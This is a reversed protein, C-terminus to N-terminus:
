PTRGIVALAGGRGALVAGLELLGALPLLPVAAASAIVLDRRAVEEHRVFRRIVDPRRTLRNLLTVWMGPIAQEVLVRRSEIQEFGARMLLAVVGRPTFHVRHRQPDLHFWRDGGLEAQLSVLNPVGVLVRGGPVLWRRVRELIPLPEGLHELVHWLVAADFSAAPLDVIEVSERVVTVGPTPPIKRFPELATVRHGARALATALRGDGAGLDLVRSQPQLPRLIRLQERTGIALAAAVLTALHRDEPQAYLQASATPASVTLGSGCSTCCLLPSRAVSLPGGCAPCSSLAAPSTLDTHIVTHELPM